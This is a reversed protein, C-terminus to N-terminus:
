LSGLIIELFYGDVGNQVFGSVENKQSKRVLWVPWLFPFFFFFLFSVPDSVSSRGSAISKLRRMVNM